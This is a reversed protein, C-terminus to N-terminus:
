GKLNYIVNQPLPVCLSKDVVKKRMLQKKNFHRSINQIIDTFNDKEGDKYYFLKISRCNTHEFITNLLTRDSLGCSHGMIFVQFENSEVWKLLNKYNSNNLYLFSKINELYRNDGKNEITKYYDDMEDGFGFNIPNESCYPNGHIQLIRSFGICNSQKENLIKVYNKVNSTYNFDLFLNELYDIPQKSLNENVAMNLPFFSLDFNILKERDEEPFELFYPHNPNGSLDKFNYNFLELIEGSSIGDFSIDYKNEVESEIYFKLLNKIQLFENNLQNIDNIEFLYSENVISILIKYYCNEIDVWNDINLITILEFFKNSIYFIDDKHNKAPRPHKIRIGKNPHEIFKYGYESCYNKAKELLQNYNEIQCNLFDFSPSQFVLNQFLPNEFETRLNKWIFDIFNKYSTPLKHALDFGNGVIVLRNIKESTRM